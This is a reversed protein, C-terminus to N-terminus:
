GLGNAIHERYAFSELGAKREAGLGLLQTEEGRMVDPRHQDQCAVGPLIHVKRNLEKTQVKVAGVAVERLSVPLFLYPAEQWGQRSGVMGSMLVPAKEPGGMFTTSWLQNLNIKKCLWCDALAERGEIVDAGSMQWVRFHTTGLRCRGVRASFREYRSNIKNHIWPKRLSNQKVYEQLTTVKDVIWGFASRFM